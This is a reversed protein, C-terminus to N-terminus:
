KGADSRDRKHDGFDNVPAKPWCSKPWDLAPGRQIIPLSFERHGGIGCVCFKGSFRFGKNGQSKPIARNLAYM